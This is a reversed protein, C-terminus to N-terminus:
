LEFVRLSQEYERYPFTDYHVQKGYLFEWEPGNMPLEWAKIHSLLIISGKKSHREMISLMRKWDYHGYLCGTCVLLEYFGTPVLCPIIRESFRKRANESVEYGYIEIAPLDQTIFGEGCGVDLASSYTGTEPAHMKAARIIEEKRRQDEPNTKFGWPDEKEYAKEIEEIPQM